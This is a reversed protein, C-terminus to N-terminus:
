RIHPKLLLYVVTIGIGLSFLWLFFYKVARIAAEEESLKEHMDLAKRYDGSDVAKKFEPDIM